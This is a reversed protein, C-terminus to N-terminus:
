PCNTPYPSCACPNCPAPGNSFLYDNLFIVDFVDDAGDCNVDGRNIHPCGADAQPVPSGTFVYDILLSLDFVDFVNNGDLDGHHACDCATITVTGKTFSPAVMITAGQPTFHGFMLHNNQATCTTDIEFTGPTTTVNMTLLMSPAGDSGPSLPSSYFRVRVFMAGEPSAGVARSSDTAESTIEQFGRAGGWGCAQYEVSYQNTIAAETMVTDIRGGWSMALHSIFSGPTNERITLPVVIGSLPIDNTVRIGITVEQAGATVSRSEVVVANAGFARGSALLVVPIWIAKHFRKM